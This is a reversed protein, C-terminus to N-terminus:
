PRLGPVRRPEQWTMPALVRKLAPVKVHLRLIRRRDFVLWGGGEGDDCGSPPTRSSPGFGCSSALSRRTAPMSPRAARRSRSRAMSCHGSRASGSARGKASPPLGPSGIGALPGHGFALALADAALSSTDSSM